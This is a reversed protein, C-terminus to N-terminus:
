RFFVKYTHNYKYRNCKEQLQDHMPASINCPVYACIFRRECWPNLNCSNNMQLNLRFLVSICNIQIIRPTQHLTMSSDRAWLIEAYESYMKNRTYKNGFHPKIRNSHIEVDVIWKIGVNMSALSTIKTITIATTTTAITTMIRM